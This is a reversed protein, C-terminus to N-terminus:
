LTILESSLGPYEANCLSGREKQCGWGGGVSVLCSVESLSSASADRVRGAVQKVNVHM